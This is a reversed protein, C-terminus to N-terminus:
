MSSILHKRLSDWNGVLLSLLLYSQKVRELWISSLRRYSMWPLIKGKMRELLMNKFKNVKNNSENVPITCFVCWQCSFCM